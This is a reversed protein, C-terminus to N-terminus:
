GGKGDGKGGGDKGKREALPIKGSALETGTFSLIPVEQKVAERIGSQIASESTSSIRVSTAQSGVALAISSPVSLRGSFAGNEDAEIRDIPYGKTDGVMMWVVYSDGKKLGPDLGQVEMDVSLQQDDVIGFTATGAVGSGGVPKLSVPISRGTDATSTTTTSPDSGSDGSFVGAVALIVVLLIVGLLALAAILRSQSRAPAPHEPPSAPAAPASGADPLAARRRRGRAEPLSPQKAAPAVLALGAQIREALELSEPNAQLHRVADARGIPDAQGLLYDTLPVEGGDPDSGGIEELAARGRERVEPPSVGLLGSIDEYSQGRECLLQLLARQDGQLPM